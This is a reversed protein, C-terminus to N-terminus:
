SPVAITTPITRWTISDALSPFTLFESTGNATVAIRCDSPTGRRSACAATFRTVGVFDLEYPEIAGLRM